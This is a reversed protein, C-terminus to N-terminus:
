IPLMIDAVSRWAFTTRRFQGDLFREYDAAIAVYGHAALDWVVGHMAVATEEEEPHVIVTPFPGAGPPRAGEIHVLLGERSFDAKWVVVQPPKERSYTLYHNEGGCS